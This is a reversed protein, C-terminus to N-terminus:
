MKFENKDMLKDWSLFAECSMSIKRFLDACSLHIRDFQMCYFPMRRAKSETPPFIYFINIVQIPDQMKMVPKLHPLIHQSYEEKSCKETVLLINPLVFPVM